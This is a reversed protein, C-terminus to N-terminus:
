VDDTIARQKGQFFSYLVDDVVSDTTLNAFIPIKKGRREETCDWYLTDCYDLAVCVGVSM